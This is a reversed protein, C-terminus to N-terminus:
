EILIIISRIEFDIDFNDDSIIDDINFSYGAGNITGTGTAFFINDRSSSKPRISSTKIIDYEKKERLIELFPIFTDKIEVWKFNVYRNDWKSFHIEKTLKRSKLHKLYTLTFKLFDLTFGNDILDALHTECFEVLKDYGVFNKYSENFRKLYKKNISINITIIDDVNSIINDNIIDKLCVLHEFGSVEKDNKKILTNNNTRFWINNDVDYYSNLQQILPIIADKIKDWSFFKNYNPSSRHFIILIYDYKEIVSCKFDTIDDCLYALHEDCISKIEGITNVINENFRKLYRM